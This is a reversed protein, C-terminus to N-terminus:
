SSTYFRHVIVYNKLRFSLFDLHNKKKNHIPILTELLNTQFDQCNLYIFNYM